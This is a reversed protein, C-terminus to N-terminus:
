EQSKTFYTLNIYGLFHCPTVILFVTNNWSMALSYIGYDNADIHAFLKTQKSLIAIPVSRGKQMKWMSADSKFINFLCFSVTFSITVPKTYFQSSRQWLIKKLPWSLVPFTICYWRPPHIDEFTFYLIHM